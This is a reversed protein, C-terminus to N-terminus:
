CLIKNRNKQGHHFIRALNETTNRSVGSKIVELDAAGRQYMLSAIALQFARDTGVFSQFKQFAQDQYDAETQGLARHGLATDGNSTKFIFTARDFDRKM